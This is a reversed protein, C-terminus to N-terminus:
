LATVNDQCNMCMSEIEQVTQDGDINSFLGTKRTIGDEDEKFESQDELHIQEVEKEIKSDSMM